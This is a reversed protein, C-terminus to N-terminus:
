GLAQGLDAILDDASELGIHLRLVAHDAPHWYRHGTLANPDVWQVLSEFGGWSFGISFLQLADAIARGAEAPRNLEFSLLGNSGTCDRQWLAHGPDSPLAPHYVRAVGDLPLGPPNAAYRPYAQTTVVDYVPSYAVDHLHTYTLAINKAHCDANRVVYQTLLHWGFCELQARTDAAPLYVRTANLVRETTTAYKEHPPLGLLGCADELGHTPIGHEDVDFRDVVL